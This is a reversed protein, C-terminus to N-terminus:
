LPAINQTHVRFGSVGGAASGGIQRLRQALQYFHILYGKHHGDMVAIVQVGGEPVEPFLAFHGQVGGHGLHQGCFLYLIHRNGLDILGNLLCKVVIVVAVLLLLAKQDGLRIPGLTQVLHEVLARVAAGFELHIGLTRFQEALVAALAPKHFFIALEPRQLAFCFEGM